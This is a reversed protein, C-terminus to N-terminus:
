GFKNFSSPSAVSSIEAAQSGLDSRNAVVNIEVGDAINAGPEIIATEHIMSGEYYM